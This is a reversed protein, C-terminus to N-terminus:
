KKLLKFYYNRGQYSIRCIFIGSNNTKPTWRISQQGRLALGKYLQQVLRGDVSYIDAQLEGANPLNFRIQTEDSFPNPYNSIALQDATLQEVANPDTYVFTAETVASWESSTKARARFTISSGVSIAGTYAKASATVAGTIPTRPDSGDLTYYITGTNTTM